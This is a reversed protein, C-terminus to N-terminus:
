TLFAFVAREVLRDMSGNEAGGVLTDQTRKRTNARTIMKESTSAICWYDKEIEFPTRYSLGQHLCAQKWWNVWGFTTIEVELVDRWTRTHTLKNKYFGNVNEALANNSSDVVTGTSPTIGAKALREDYM